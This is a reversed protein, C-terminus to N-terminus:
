VRVNYSREHNEGESKTLEAVINEYATLLQQEQMYEVFEEYDEIKAAQYGQLLAEMRERQANLLKSRYPLYKVRHLATPLKRLSRHSQPKQLCGRVLQSTEDLESLRELLATLVM